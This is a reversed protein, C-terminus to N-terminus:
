NIKVLAGQINTIGSGKVDLMVGEISAQASSKLELKSDASIKTQVSTLETSKTGKMKLEEDAEISINKAKLKMDMKATIKIDGEANIEIDKKSNIIIKPGSKEMKIELLLVGGSSLGLTLSEENDLKLSTYNGGSTKSEIKLCKDADKRELALLNIPFKDLYNDALIGKGKDDDFQIQRGSRSGIMKLNNGAEAIGSKHKDTYVAGKVFPQEVNGNIFGVLVEDDKEPLFRFGKDKGAHPVTVSIWPSKENDAMWPFKVKIRALGDKDDNDTVVAAQPDAKAFLLPNTYPPVKVESPVAVFSNRYSSSQFSNHNIQTIIFKKGEDNESEKIKILTGVTLSANYSSATVLVSKSVMAEQMKKHIAELNEKRFGSAVFVRKGPHEMVEGGKLSAKQFENAPEAEKTKANIAESKFIDTATLAEPLRIVKANINLDFIENNTTRLLVGDGQPAKGFYMKEGDYYIWEGFRTALSVVFDFTTQNYQVIYHQEGTEAENNLDNKISSDSFVKDIIAKIKKKYFSQAEPLENVKGFNGLGHVHFNYYGDAGLSSSVETVYGKFNHGASNNSNLLKIEVSKGLIEKKTQLISSFSGDNNPPRMAFSFNNVSALAENLVLNTYVIANGSNYGSIKVENQSIASFGDM